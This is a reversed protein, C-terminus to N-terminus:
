MARFQEIPADINRLWQTLWSNPSWCHWFECIWECEDDTLAGSYVLQVLQRQIEQPAPEDPKNLKKPEYAALEGHKARMQDITLAPIEVIDATHMNWYAIRWAHHANEPTPEGGIETQPEYDVEVVAEPHARMMESLTHGTTTVKIQRGDRYLMFSQYVTSNLDPTAAVNSRRSREIAQTAVYRGQGDKDKPLLWDDFSM